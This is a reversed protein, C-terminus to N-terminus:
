VEVGLEQDVVYEYRQGGVTVELVRERSSSAGPNNGISNVEKNKKLDEKSLKGGIVQQDNSLLSNTSDLTLDEEDLEGPLPVNVNVRTFFAMKERFTNIDPQQKRSKRLLYIERASKKLLKELKREESAQRSAERSATALFQQLQENESVWSPLESEGKRVLDEFRSKIERLRHLEENLQVMKTQLARLDLALDISTRMSKTPISKPTNKTTSANSLQLVAPPTKWRLSRRQASNRQFPGRRYLPMSSDSDSRNLRCIYLNKSVAASPSFTQSRKIISPRTESGKKWGKEPIFVCETNTEKDCTEVSTNFSEEEVYTDDMDQSNLSMRKCMGFADNEEIDDDENDDDDDDDDESCLHEIIGQKAEFEFVDPAQNRTLTSTQSSIITSDDSSEEKLPLSGAHSMVSSLGPDTTNIAHPGLESGWSNLKDDKDDTGVQQESSFPLSNRNDQQIFSFSLINYWKNSVTNPNFDALSLQTCGVCKETDDYSRTWVNVQLTKTYLKSIPISVRFIDGFTPRTLNTVFATCFTEMSQVSYPLISAKIYIKCDVPINLVNLNRAREIGIHLLSDSAAYRLKIQVQATELNLESIPFQDDDIRNCAEFVGSDGAVSEDSVAASVSRTNSGSLNMSKAEDPVLETIPSLPPNSMVDSSSDYVSRPRLPNCGISSSDIVNDSPLQVNATPRNLYSMHNRFVDSATAGHRYDVVSQDQTNSPVLNLSQLQHRQREVSNLYTQEYSPPPGYDYPSAPPSSSSSLSSRPSLSPMSIASQSLPPVGLGLSKQREVSSGVGGVFTESVSLSNINCNSGHLLKELREHLERLNTEQASPLGYIDTFSLSSLSGKSSTTSLSGLSSSSSISLTSASLSKLQSELYTTLRMADTLQQLLLQKQEHIRLRNAIVRNSMERASNLDGELMKIKNQISVMDNENRSKPRISRFERLLQEKEQILLLRDKDSETQGPEVKDELDALRQQILQVQKRAEDYQLRMRAMEALRAGMPVLEGSLDTQSSQHLRESPISLTSVDPSDNSSRLRTLDDKLRALSQMLEAKERKGSSLSKKINRLEDMIAQAETINYVGKQSAMQREVEALNQVGRETYQVESKIQMLEQKLRLVRHKAITVDAKLLDPDYRTSTSSTSVSSCLSTESSSINNLANNLHNYEEQALNLRQQKIEYIERKSNLDDQAIILYNKLMDEQLQRWQQRPDEVQNTQNIHDIYYIGLRRDFTEEWGLPLENGVCDAFTTPKTYSDRPDIWTTKKENHDIFYVKGDYDRGFDWGPPLPLEGNKRRPMM